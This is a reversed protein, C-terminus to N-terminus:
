SVSGDDCVPRTRDRGSWAMRAVVFMRSLGELRPRYSSAGDISFVRISRNTKSLKNAVVQVM